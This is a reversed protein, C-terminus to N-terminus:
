KFAKKLGKMVYYDMEPIHVTNFLIQNEEVTLGNANSLKEM